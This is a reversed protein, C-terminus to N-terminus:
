ADAREVERVDSPRFWKRGSVADHEALRQEGSVGDGATQRFAVRRSANSRDGVRPADSRVGDGLRRRTRAPSEDIRADLRWAHPGAVRERALVRVDARLRSE